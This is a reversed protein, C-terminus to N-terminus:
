HEVYKAFLNEPTTMAKFELNNGSPDKFFMTWQEGKRGQFRLHPEIIFKIDSKKIRDALAHFEDVTLAAGFHPMPVDDADVPNHFDVAKYDKGVAHVVLQHGLMNYDQWQASSRGEAFGMIGGYFDRAEDLDRVPIALHFPPIVTAFGRCRLAPACQSFLARRLM